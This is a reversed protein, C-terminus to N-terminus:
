QEDEKELRRCDHCKWGDRWSWGHETIEYAGCSCVSKYHSGSMDIDPLPEPTPTWACEDCDGDCQASAAMPCSEIREQRAQEIRWAHRAADAQRVTDWFWKERDTDAM